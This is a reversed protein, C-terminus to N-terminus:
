KLAQLLRQKVTAANPFGSLVSVPKGWRNIFFYTPIGSMESSWALYDWQANTLRYHDGPIGAAQSQWDELPSTENTIHVYAIDEARLEERMPQMAHYATRCPECGTVWFDVLVPRGRYASLITDLLQEEGVAPVECIRSESTAEKHPSGANEGNAAVLEAPTDITTQMPAGAQPTGSGNLRSLLRRNDALLTERYSDPLTTLEAQQAESLPTLSNLQDQLYLFTCVDFLCGQRTGLREALQDQKTRWPTIARLYDPSLLTKPENLLRLQETSIFDDPLSQRVRDIYAKSGDPDNRLDIVGQRDAATRILSLVSNLRSILDTRLWIEGLEKAAPSLPLRPLQELYQTAQSELDQRVEEPTLATPRRYGAAQMWTRNLEETVDALPGNLYIPKGHPEKRDEDYWSRRHSLKRLNICVLTKRGAEAYCTFTTGMVRIRCPATGVVRGQWRFRGCSDPEYELPQWEYHDADMMRLEVPFPAMEPRFDLLQGAITAAGQKLVPAPLTDTRARHHPVYEQPLSLPPLPNGDLRLGWICFANKEGSNELFDVAKVEPPLPPFVLQFSDRGNAPMRHRKGPTIGTASRLPYSNGEEDRLLTSPAIAIWYKPRYKVGLYLVTATKSRAIRTVKIVGTNNACYAPNEIIERATPDAAETQASLRAPCTLLLCILALHTYKM